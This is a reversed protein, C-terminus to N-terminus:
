GDGGFESRHGGHGAASTRQQSGASHCQRQETITKVSASLAMETERGTGPAWSRPPRRTEPLKALTADVRGDQGLVPPEPTM